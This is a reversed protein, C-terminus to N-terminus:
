RATWVTGAPKEWICRILKDLLKPDPPAGNKAPKQKINDCDLLERDALVTNNEDVRLKEVNKDAIAQKAAQAQKEAATEQLPRLNKIHTTYEKQAGTHDKEDDMRVVVASVSMDIAVITAKKYYKDEKLSLVSAEVRDGVKYTPQQQASASFTAGIIITIAAVMALTLLKISHLKTQKKMKTERTRALVKIKAKDIPADSNVSLRRVGRKLPRAVVASSALQRHSVRQNRDAALAQEACTRNSLGRKAPRSSDPSSHDPPKVWRNGRDNACNPVVVMEAGVRALKVTSLQSEM